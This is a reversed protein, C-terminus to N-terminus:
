QDDLALIVQILLESKSRILIQSKLYESLQLFKSSFFPIFDCWLLYLHQNAPFRPTQKHSNRAVLRKIIKWDDPSIQSSKSSNMENLMVTELLNLNDFPTKASVIRDILFAAIIIFLDLFEPLFDQFSKFLRHYVIFKTYDTIRQISLIPYLSSPPSITSQNFTSDNLNPFGPHYISPQSLNPVNIVPPVPQVNLDMQYISLLAIEISSLESEQDFNKNDFSEEVINIHNFILIPVLSFLFKRVSPTPSKCM